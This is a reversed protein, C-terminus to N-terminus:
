PFAISVCAFGLPAQKLIEDRGFGLLGDVLARIHGFREEGIVIGSLGSCRGFEVPSGKM